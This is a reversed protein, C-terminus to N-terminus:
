GGGRAHQEAAAAFQALFDGDLQLSEADLDDDDVAIGVRRGHLDRVAAVGQGHEVALRQAGDDFLLLRM